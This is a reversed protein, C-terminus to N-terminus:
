SSNDIKYVIRYNMKNDSPTVGPGPISGPYRKRSVLEGFKRLAM